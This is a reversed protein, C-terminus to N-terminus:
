ANHDFCGRPFWHTSLLSDFYNSFYIAGSMMYRCLNCLSYLSQYDFGWVTSLSRPFQLFCIFFFVRFLRLLPASIGEGRSLCLLSYILEKSVWKRKSVSWCWSDFLLCCDNRFTSHDVRCLKLMVRCVKKREDAFEMQSLGGRHRDRNELTRARDWVKRIAATTHPHFQSARLTIYAYTAPCNPLRSKTSINIRVFTAISLFLIWHRYLNFGM